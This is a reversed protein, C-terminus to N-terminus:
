GMTATREREQFTVILLNRARGLSFASPTAQTAYLGPPSPIKQILHKCCYSRIEVLRDNPTIRATGTDPDVLGLRELDRFHFVLTLRSDPNNGATTMRQALFAHDEVQCPVNILVERRAEERTGDAETVVIPEKFVDDYGSSLAGAADPPHERTANRDFRAIVAMFPNVLRGRGARPM